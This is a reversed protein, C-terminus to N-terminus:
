VASRGSRAVTKLSLALIFFDLLPSRNELYYLDYELDRLSDQEEGRQRHIRAWGIVGPKVSHRQRYFPILDNMRRAFFPREPRPGVMAMQGKLVNLLQPMWVLGHRRLFGGIPTFGGEQRTCRFRYAEFPVGNLGVRPERLLVPGRSSIKILAAITLTLPLTVVAVALAITRSYLSQFADGSDPTHAGNFITRSPWIETVCKRAFVREYLTGIEEVRVGGFRLALFEDTWWPRIDQRRGIVISDPIARDLVADLDAMTGLKTVPPASAAPPGSELYGITMLGSEPHASFHGAIKIVTPSMGLFLVHGAATASRAARDFLLRWGFVAAFALISGPLMMKRPIILDPNLYSIVSQGIFALGFIVCLNQFLALRSRIRVEAYLNRFFLGLVVFGVVIATRFLGSDYLLFVGVDGIDPDAYAGALFCAYLLIIEAVVLTFIRVPIVTSLIGSM